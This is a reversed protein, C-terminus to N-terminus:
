VLAFRAIRIRVVLGAGLARLVRENDRFHEVFDNLVYCTFFACSDPRVSFGDFEVDWGEGEVDRV